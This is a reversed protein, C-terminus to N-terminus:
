TVNYKGKLKPMPGINESKILEIVKQDKWITHLGYLLSLLRNEKVEAENVFAEKERTMKNVDLKLQKITYDQPLPSLGGTRREVGEGRTMRMDIIKKVTPFNQSNVIGCDFADMLINQVGATDARAVKTAFSIPFLNEEVGKILREEGKEVLRIYERLYGDSKDTIKSIQEYSFGSARMRKVERAFWMTGPPVRAINEVLSYLYAKKATCNIVEAPIEDYELSKYALYRGQGCVLEYYGNKEYNRENVVIPKLLGVEKISRINEQFKKKNRNRSNLVKIESIPIKAYKREQMPRVIDESM